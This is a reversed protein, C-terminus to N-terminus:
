LDGRAEGVCIAVARKDAIAILARICPRSSAEERGPLVGGFGILDSQLRGSVDRFPHLRAIAREARWM